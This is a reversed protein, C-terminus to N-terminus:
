KGKVEMKIYKSYGKELDILSIEMTNLLVDAKLQQIESLKSPITFKYYGSENNIITKINKIEAIQILGLVCSQTLTSIAACIIDNGQKAYGSHGSCEVSVIHNDQKTIKITTM